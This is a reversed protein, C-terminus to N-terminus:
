RRINRRRRSEERVQQLDHLARRRPAASISRPGIFDDEGAAHGGAPAHGLGAGSLEDGAHELQAALVGHDDEGVGVEFRSGAGGDPASEGIAALGAEGDFRM